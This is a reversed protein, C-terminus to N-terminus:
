CRPLDARAWQAPIASKDPAVPGRSGLSAHLLAPGEATAYVKDLRGPLLWSMPGIVEGSVVVRVWGPEGRAPVHDSSASCWDSYTASVGGSWWRWGDEDGAIREVANAAGEALKAAEALRYTDVTPTGLDSTAAARWAARLGASAALSAEAQANVVIFAHVALVLVAMIMAPWLIVFALSDGQEADRRRTRRRPPRRSDDPSSTGPDEPAAAASM